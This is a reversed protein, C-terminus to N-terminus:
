FGEYGSWVEREYDRASGRYDEAHPFVREVYTFAGEYAPADIIFKGNLLVAFRETLRIEGCEPCTGSVHRQVKIRIHVVDCQCGDECVCEESGKCQCWKECKCTEITRHLRTDSLQGPNIGCEPCSNYNM